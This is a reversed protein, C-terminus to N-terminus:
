NDSGCEHQVNATSNITLTATNSSRSLSGTTGTVNFATAGEPLDQLTSRHVCTRWIARMMAFYGGSGTAVSRWTAAGFGSQGVGSRSPARPYRLAKKSGASLIEAWSPPPLTPPSARRNGTLQPPALSPSPSPRASPPTSCAAKEPSISTSTAPAPAETSDLLLSGIFLLVPTAM